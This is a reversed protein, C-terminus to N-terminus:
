KEVISMKAVDSVSAGNGSITDIILPCIEGSTQIQVTVTVNVKTVNNKSFGEFVPNAYETGSALFTAQNAKSFVTVQERSTGYKYNFSIEDDVISFGVMNRTYDTQSHELMFKLGTRDNHAGSPRNYNSESRSSAHAMQLFTVGSATAREVLGVMEGLNWTSANMAYSIIGGPAGNNYSGVIFEIWNNPNNVDTVRFFLRYILSTTGYNPVGFRILDAGHSNTLTVNNITFVNSGQTLDVFIMNSNIDDTGDKNVDATLTSYRIRNVVDVQCTSKYEIGNYTYNASVVAKGVSLAIVTGRNNVTAANIGEDVSWTVATSVINGDVFVSASLAHSSPFVSETAGSYLTLKADSLVISVVPVKKVTVILYAVYEKGQYECTVTFTTQGAGGATVKGSKYQAVASDTNEITYDNVNIKQDGDVIYFEFKQETPYFKENANNEKEYINFYTSSLVLAPGDKVTVSVEKISSRVGKYEAQVKIVTEGAGVGTVVGDATVTAVSQNDSLYTLTADGLTEGRYTARAPVSLKGNVNLELGGFRDIEVSLVDNSESVIVACTASKGGGSVTVSSIGAKIATVKVYNGHETMNIVQDNNNSWTIQDINQYSAIIDAEGFTSLTVSTKNLTLYKDYTPTTSAPADSCGVFPVLMIFLAMILSIIKRM